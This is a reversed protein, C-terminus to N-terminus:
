PEFHGLRLFAAVQRAVRPSILMGAHSVPLVLHASLGPLRTEDVTVVGDSPAPLRVLARALGLPSPRSGAIAGVCFRGDLRQPFNSQWIATSRGLLLGGGHWRALANAAQSGAVASGLLVLRGIRKDPEGELYSLAVMGGLSHGVLHVTDAPISAIRRAVAAVHEDLTGRMSRYGLSIPRFGARDLAGALYLTALRTMWLGHLLLM